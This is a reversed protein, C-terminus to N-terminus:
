AGERATGKFGKLLGTGFWAGLASVALVFATGATVKLEVPLKVVDAGKCGCKLEREGYDM